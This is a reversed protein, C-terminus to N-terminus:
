RHSAERRDLWDEIRDFIDERNTENFNEHYNEGYFHQEVLTADIRGLYTRLLESDTLRDQGAVAVFLPQDWKHITDAIEAQATLFQHGVRFSVARARIDDAEDKKHRATIAPDHTLVEMFDEAPAKLKPAIASIVGALRKLAGPVPVANAWYPASMIYGRLGDEEKQRKLGYLAALLGGMSHAVIYRPLDPYQAKTWEILLAVDDLLDDFSDFHALRQGDHGRMDFSVMHWGRANFSQAMTCYDGGHAMGGHLAILVGKPSDSEWIHIPREKADACRLHDIRTENFRNM